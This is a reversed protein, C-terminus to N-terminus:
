RFVKAFIEEFDVADVVFYAKGFIICANLQIEQSFIYGAWTVVGHNVGDHEGQHLVEKNGL